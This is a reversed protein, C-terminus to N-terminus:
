RLLTVDGVAVPMMAGDSRRWAIRYLYVDSPAPLGNVTGDWRADPATSEFIVVGWRNFIQLREIQARGELVLMEFFDNNGDGDPTFANPIRVLPFLLRFVKEATRICGQPSVARLTYRISASATDNSAPRVEINASNFPLNRTDIVTEQWSFSFGNLSQPPSVSAFLQVSQGVDLRNTDPVSVIALSFSPVTTVRVTDRLACTDGYFYSVVFSTTSDPSPAVIATTEGTNWLYRGSPGSGSASLVIHDGACITTDASATLTASFVIVELSRTLSCLGDRLTVTYTTNRNPSVVPAPANAALGPDPPSATWEYQLSPNPALNLTLTEGPCLRPDSPFLVNLNEGDVNVVVTDRRQCGSGYTFTIIYSTTTDPSVLVSQATSLVQNDRTRVWEFLGGPTDTLAILRVSQGRCITTDNSVQLLASARVAIRVSDRGICGNATEVYYTATQTPYFVPAPTQVTGFGPHTSTWTYSTLSDFLSNLLVSDGPCLTLNPPPLLLPASPRLNVTAVSTDRCSGVQVVRRYYTTQEPRVWLNPLTDVTLLTTPPTRTWSFTLGPYNALNFPPTRLLVTDGLCIVTDQPLIRLDTPLSDVFLFYIKEWTCGGVPTSATLVYQMSHAPTATARKGNQDISLADTPTWTFLGDWSVSDIGLSLSQGRCLYLTDEAPMYAPKYFWIDVSVSDVSPVPCLPSHATLFYRAHHLATIVPNAETSTFGPPQSSWSYSTNAFAPGGLHMTDGECLSRSPAILYQAAKGPLVLISITDSATCSDKKVTLVYTFTGTDTATFFPTPCTYCSLGMGGTWGYTADPTIEQPVLKFSAELCVTVDPGLSVTCPSQAELVAFTYAFSFLFLLLRRM